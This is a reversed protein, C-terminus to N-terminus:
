LKNKRPDFWKKGYLLSSSPKENTHSVVVEISPYIKLMNEPPVCVCVSQPTHTHRYRQPKLKSMLVHQILIVCVRDVCLILYDKKKKSHTAVVQDYKYKALM